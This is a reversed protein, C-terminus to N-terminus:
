YNKSKHKKRRHSHLIDSEPIQCRTAPLIKFINQPFTSDENETDFPLGLLLHEFVLVVESGEMSSYNCQIKITKLYINWLSLKKNIKKLVALITLNEM